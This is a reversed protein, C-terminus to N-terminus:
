IDSNDILRVKLGDFEDELDIQCSLRSYEPSYNDAFELLVAEDSEIKELEVPSEVIYCHCTACSCSGGCLATIEDFNNEQLVDKLNDGAEFSIQQTQGQSNEVHIIPM